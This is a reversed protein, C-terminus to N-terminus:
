VKYYNCIVRSFAEVSFSAKRLQLCHFLEITDISVALSPHVPATMIYGSALINLVIDTDVSVRPIVACSDLLYIDIVQITIALDPNYM